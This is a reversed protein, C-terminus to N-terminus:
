AMTELMKLSVEYKLNYGNVFAKADEAIYESMRMCEDGISGAIHPTLFVNPLTFLESGDVPPEPYTVDLVACIHPHTKLTEILDEEVVQAGRGTNIFTANDQMKSFHRIDMMKQTTPLNPAHNSIVQCKEFLEELSVLTVGLEESREKSVFPDYALVNLNYDMLRRAVGAGIAGLSILGVNKGYNGPFKRSHELAKLYNERSDCMRMSSYFGKNALIIQAVSYEIVPVANALWGSIVKIGLNLFPRAFYQVSGAAYFVIKLNPFFTKIEDETFEPMGWTSFLCDIDSLKGADNKTFIGDYFDFLNNLTDLTKKSYVRQINDADGIFAAKM